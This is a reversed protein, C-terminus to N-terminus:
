LGYDLTAKLYTFIIEVVKVHTKKPTAQFILVMHEAQMIDCRSAIVYLLSGTM